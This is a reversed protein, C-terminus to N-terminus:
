KKELKLSDRDIFLKRDIVTKMSTERIQRQISDESIHTNVSDPVSAMTEENAESSSDNVKQKNSACAVLLASGLVLISLLQSTKYKM